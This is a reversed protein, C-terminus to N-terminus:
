VECAPVPLPKAMRPLGLNFSSVTKYYYDDYETLWVADRITAGPMAARAVQMVTDDDFRTFTIGQDVHRYSCTNM